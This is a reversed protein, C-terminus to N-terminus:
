LAPASFLPGQPVHWHLPIFVTDHPYNIIRNDKYIVSYYILINLM